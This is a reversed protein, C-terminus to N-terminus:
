KCKCTTLTHEIRSTDLDRRINIEYLREVKVDLQHLIEAHQKIDGLVTQAFTGLGLVLGASPVVLRYGVRSPSHENAKGM